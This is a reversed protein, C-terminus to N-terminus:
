IQEDIKWKLESSAKIVRVENRFSERIEDDVMQWKNTKNEM